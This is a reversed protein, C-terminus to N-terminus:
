PHTACGANGAGEEGSLVYRFGYGPRSIADSSHSTSNSLHIPISGRTRVFSATMEPHAALCLGPFWKDVRGHRTPNEPACNRVM